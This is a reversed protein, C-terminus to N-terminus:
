SGGVVRLQSRDPIAPGYGAQRRRIALQEPSLPKATFRPLTEAVARQEAESLPQWKGPASKRMTLSATLKAVTAEVAAIEEPTPPPNARNELPPPPEAERVPASLSEGKLYSSSLREEKRSESSPEQRVSGVRATPIPPPNNDSTGNGHRARKMNCAQCAAVLNDEEVGGGDRVAVVHDVHFFHPHAPNERILQVGCWHCKGDDRQFIRETKQPSDSRRYPRQRETKEVTGRIIAPNGGNSGHAKWAAHAAADAEAERVMRRCYIVGEDTRSFVGAAELEALLKGVERANGGLMSALEGLTPVRGNLTIYGVPTGEHALCLMDMWMGRAAWGCARLALEAKWDKWVFKSYHHGNGNSM